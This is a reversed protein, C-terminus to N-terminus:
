IQKPITLVVEIYDSQRQAVFGLQTAIHRMGMNGPLIYGIVREIEEDRATGILRELLNRGIGRGQFQDSVLLAFEAEPRGHRKVLRGVAIIQDTQSEPDHQEVVLALTRDYDIFCQRTLRDHAIRTGLKLEQFYRNHVTEESLTHHFEVLKPEDEPRIPRVQLQTGDNLQWHDIYRTPYPRIALRPLPHGLEAPPHLIVRADLAILQEHSVLLPNIDIERIRPQEAVLQSFRVLLQELALMDVPPQGRTGQLAKMIRTREMMRRALTTNLPPLGLASDQFVEVLSGGSGFLLVPGFQADCSSGLILEYGSGQVMPQVSVGQFHEAGRLRTVSNRIASYARRVATETNLNLKVGGVDMKHTITASVLKLVVPFGMRQALAVAQDPSQAVETTVVPIAYAALIQKAEAESLLLRGVSDAAAIISDVRARNMELNAGVALVPTEYLSQLNHSLQWMRTFVHAATDPFDFTPIGAHSLLRDGASVDEGGMWSALLPKHMQKAFKAMREATATPDTMAQPTLVVLLGDSQQDAAIIEAAHLYRDPEADGLIDVPNSHSWPAPLIENLAALTEPSLTALEGGGRILEDTALVGPGGANTLITLRSGQPRPQKGLVEVMDFLEAISDVRLVGCRRFAADLVADSGALTGTHSAAAKAAASTRGAKIVIIPKSRAVERAASLFSRADGISEMYIAICATNPDDGLYDILDGWSVDLMSGISVFASFGVHARLSWDLVATCLAGSQSIFGVGGPLALHNAFTANLGTYPNMLGLCNPGIIRMRNSRAAVQIQQELLAGDAGIEKFGASIIIVAGIQQAACEAIIGPVTSAPTVIVALDIPEEIASITPYAQLGLVHSRKPNIPYVKGTFAGNTLNELITRGVSGVNETAGIVAVTQPTFFAALPHQEKAPITLANMTNRIQMDNEGSELMDILLLRNLVIEFGISTM